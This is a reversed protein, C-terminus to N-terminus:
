VTWAFICSMLIIWKGSHINSTQQQSPEFIDTMFVSSAKSAASPEEEITDHPSIRLYDRFEGQRYLEKQLAPPSQQGGGFQQSKEQLKPLRDWLPDADGLASTVCCIVLCCLCAHAMNSWEGVCERWKIESGDKRSTASNAFCLQWKLVSTKPTYFM